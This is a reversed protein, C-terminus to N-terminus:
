KHRWLILPYLIDMVQLLRPRSSSPKCSTQTAWIRIGVVRWNKSWIAFNAFTVLFSQFRPFRCFRLPGFEYSYTLFVLILSAYTSSSSFIVCSSGHPFGLHFSSRIWFYYHVTHFFQNNLIALSYSSFLADFLQDLFFWFFVNSTRLKIIKIKENKWKQM